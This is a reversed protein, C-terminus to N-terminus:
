KRIVFTIGGNRRQQFTRGYWADTDEHRDHEQMQTLNKVEMSTFMDGTEQKARASCNFYKLTLQAGQALAHGGAHHLLNRIAQAARTNESVVLHLHDTSSCCVHLLGHEEQLREQVLAM